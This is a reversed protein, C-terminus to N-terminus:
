RKIETTPLIRALPKPLWWNWKGLLEMTAPVLVLRVITADVAIAVACALGLRKVSPLGASVFAIFVAVMILAASTITRASSRLGEAVSRRSDGTAQYRERIRTLLFVEYDMSLGFAIVLVLPPTITDVFPAPELGLFDLWGWQFVAVLVGYAAALSLVNMLVAKIPLVVSRLLVLLVIFSLALVFLAIKWFSNYVLSDFDVLTATTGGVAVDARKRAATPLHDRLREVTDRADESEPDTRLTVTLIARSGNKSLLPEGVRGVLRDHQIDASVRQLTQQNAADRANGHTFDVLVRVPGLAGPGVTQAAAQVGARTEHDSSFQRLASNGMHLDLAPVALVLLLASVALVSLVPHGMVTDTWREWFDRELPHKRQHRWRRLTVALRGPQYAHRGVTTILIPLLTSAALMSVAVVIIAGVAMSRLATSNALFLGALSIIVTLGSFIVAVGSTAMAITRAQDLSRGARIEERYRALIFLSYDVAVGIGIMSAMNTVYISMETSLSLAYILAGTITVAAFGLSLPLAAAVLSGFVALLIIAIIPFGRAEATAVDKKAEEQLAAWLAGQGGLHVDIQGDTVRGPESGKIRLATRLKRAIDIAEQEGGPMTLPVVVPQNPQLRAQALAGRYGAPTSSVGEVRSIKQNIGQIAAVLDGSRIHRQPVLVAVLTARAVGPFDREITQEVTVSQSGPAEFGGGTLHDSQHISFPLAVLLVLVWLTLFLKRRRQLLGDLKVLLKQM